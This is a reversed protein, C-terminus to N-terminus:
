LDPSWPPRTTSCSGPGPSGERRALPAGKDVPPHPREEHLSCPLVWAGLVRCGQGARARILGEQPLHGQCQGAGGLM